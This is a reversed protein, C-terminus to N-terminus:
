HYVNSIYVHSFVLKNYKLLSLVYSNICLTGNSRKDMLKSSKQLMWNSFKFTDKSHHCSDAKKKYM